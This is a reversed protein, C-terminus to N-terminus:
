KVDAEAPPFVVTFTSGRGSESWVDLTGGHERVITDCISLGFRTENPKTMVFPEAANLLLEPSMGHGTNSIVLRIADPKGPVASTEIRITGGTPMADRANLLLNILVQELATPDGLIRPLSADLLSDVHIGERSLQNGAVLLTDRVVASLDIPQRNPQRQRGFSLLGQATRNLRQAQRHLAQLDALLEPTGRQEEIEMVMLEIRSMIIGIPNNLEQAVGAALSGVAALREVHRAHREFEVRESIDSVLTMALGGDEDPIYMLGVEVPFESGDKRRGALTLGVGMARTHPQVFYDARDQEHVHRIRDPILVDLRQGVLEEREYGFMAEVRPNALVIQGGRDIAVIAETASEFFAPISAERRRLETRMHALETIERAVTEFEALRGDDDFLVQDVRLHWRVEGRPAIVRHELIGAPNHPGLTRLHELVRARDVEAVFPLFSRDILEDRGKGFYRCYTDNVFTLIGDPLWRCVLRQNEAVAQHHEGLEAILQEQSKDENRM